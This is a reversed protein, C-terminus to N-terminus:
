KTFLSEPMGLSARIDKWEQIEAADCNGPNTLWDATEQNIATQAQSNQGENWTSATETCTSSLQRVAFGADYKPDKSDKLAWIEGLNHTGAPVLAVYGNYFFGLPVESIVTVEAGYQKLKNWVDQHDELDFDTAVLIEDTSGDGYTFQLTFGGFEPVSISAVPMVVSETNGNPIAIEGGNGTNQAPDAVNSTVAEVQAYPQIAKVISGAIPIWVYAIVCYTAAVVLLGTFIKGMTRM